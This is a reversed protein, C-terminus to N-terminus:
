AANKALNQYKCLELIGKLLEYQGSATPRGNNQKLALYLNNICQLPETIVKGGPIILPASPEPVSEMYKLIDVLEVWYETLPPFAADDGIKLRNYPTEGDEHLLEDEPQLNGAIAQLENRCGKSSFKYFTLHKGLVNAFIQEAQPIDKEKVIVEDHVSLFVIGADHLGQWVGRMIEVEKSQLLYALNSHQKEMTHPNAPMQKSKLDNVWTIWDANGFMAALRRDSKSFLIEFFRKKGEDRTKLNAKDRISEYIDRGSDIWESFDNSGIERRLIAGLLVPQMTVVDISGTPEGDLLINPRYVRHFNSVPTHVRGSFLDIQFFLNLYKSQNYYLFWDFYETSGTGPELTIRKLHERMAITLKDMPGSNSPELYSINIKGPKLASYYNALHKNNTEKKTIAIEGRKVLADLNVGKIERHPIHVPEWDRDRRRSNYTQMTRVLTPFNETTITAKM